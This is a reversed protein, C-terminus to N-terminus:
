WVWYRVPLQEAQGCQLMQDSDSRERMQPIRKRGPRHRNASLASYGRESSFEGALGGWSDNCVHRSGGSAARLGKVMLLLLAKTLRIRREIL